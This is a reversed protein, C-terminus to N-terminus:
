FPNIIYAIGWTNGNHSYAFVIKTADPSWKAHQVYLGPPTVPVTFAAPDCPNQVFIQYNRSERNSEFALFQGDPSWWPARGQLPQIQHLQGGPLRLWIQNKNQFDLLLQHHERSRRRPVV